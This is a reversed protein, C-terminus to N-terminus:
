EVEEFSPFLGQMLGRKHEKLQEIKKAQEEILRDISSLCDAIKQQEEIKPPRNLFTSYVIDSSINQVIGGASLSIYQLQMRDSNLQQLLFDKQFYEEYERLVFWGDYIYGSIQMEYTKGYSMSNALILEGVDVFRSKKAGEITIKEETNYLKFGKANKTDGIKIWAVGDRNTTYNQIPRPSSGRYLKIYKKFKELEWEGSDRFEPFRWVPMTKGEAPFLKQMLGIKHEKLLELKQNEANILDDLSTLCDAIKQQEEKETPLAIPMNMFKTDSISIRDFRAGTNAEDIIYKHWHHSNFFHEFFDNEIDKFRFVTYLPSMVGIGIKNKSIPGVPAHASIRPNYVYDNKDVVFYNLMNSTTVIEREFYDKQDIIGDIASNTLVRTLLDTNKDVVKDALSGLQEKYWSDNFGKFRLKPVIMKDNNKM